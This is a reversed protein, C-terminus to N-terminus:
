AEALEAKEKRGRAIQSFLVVACIAIGVADTLLTPWYLLITAPVLLIWEILTTRRLWYLMTLASFAITGLVASLFSSAVMAGSAETEGEIIIEGSDVLGGNFAKVVTIDAEKKAKM